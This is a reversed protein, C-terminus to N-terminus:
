RRPAGGAPIDGPDAPERPAPGPPPATPENRPAPVPERPPPAKEPPPDTDPREPDWWPLGLPFFPAGLLVGGTTGLFISPALASGQYDSDEGRGDPWAIATMIWSVLDLPLGAIFFAGFGICYPVVSGPNTTFTRGGWDFYSNAARGTARCGSLALTTALLLPILRGPRRDLM